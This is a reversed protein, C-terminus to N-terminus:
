NKRGLAQKGKNKKIPKLLIGVIVSLDNPGKFDTPTLDFISKMIKEPGVVQAWHCNSM